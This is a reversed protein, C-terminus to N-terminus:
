EAYVFKKQKDTVKPIINGKISETQLLHNVKTLERNMIWEENLEKKEKKKLREFETILYLKFEPSLWSAFEFAIDPHAFTGGFKGRKSIFGISNTLSIWYSPSMTFSQSGSENKFQRSEALKFDINNLEEWLSYFDFSNERFILQYPIKV